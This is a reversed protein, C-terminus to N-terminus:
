PSIKLNNVVYLSIYPSTLGTGIGALTIYLLLRKVVPQSKRISALGSTFSTKIYFWPSHRVTM